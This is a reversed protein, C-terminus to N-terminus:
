WKPPLCKSSRHFNIYTKEEQLEKAFQFPQLHTERNPYQVRAEVM